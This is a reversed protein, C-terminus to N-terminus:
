KVTLKEIFSEKSTENLSIKGEIFNVGFFSPVVSPDDEFYIYLKDFPIINEANIEKNFTQFYEEALSMYENTEIFDNISLRKLPEQSLKFFDKISKIDPLEVDNVTFTGDSDKILDIQQGHSEFIYHKKIYSETVQVYYGIFTINYVWKENFFDCNLNM